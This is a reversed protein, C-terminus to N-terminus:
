SSPRRKRGGGHKRNSQQEVVKKRLEERESALASDLRSNGFQKRKKLGLRKRTVVEHVKADVWDGKKNELWKGIRRSRAKGRRRHFRRMADALLLAARQPPLFGQALACAEVAADLAELDAGPFTHIPGRCFACAKPANRRGSVTMRDCSECYAAFMDRTGQHM